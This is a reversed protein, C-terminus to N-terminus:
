KPWEPWDNKVSSTWRPARREFYAV